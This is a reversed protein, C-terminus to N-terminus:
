NNLIDHLFSPTIPLERIFIGKGKFANDIAAAIAPMASLRGGEGCGKIGYETYPSPTEVHDIFIDPVELSAPIAYDALTM